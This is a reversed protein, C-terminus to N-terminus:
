MRHRPRPRHEKEALARLIKEPTIPLERIRVAIADYVANAVAPAAPILSLEGISKAGYPGGPDGEEILIPRIRPLDAPLPLACNLYAPTVARGDESILEEGLAAGLGMAIGGIIQGEVMTPNIAKGIDH